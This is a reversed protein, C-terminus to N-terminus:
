PATAFAKPFDALQTLRRSANSSPKGSGIMAARFAPFTPWQVTSRTNAGNARALLSCAILSSLTISVSGNLLRSSSWNKLCYLDDGRIVRSFIISSGLSANFAIRNMLLSSSARLSSPPGSSIQSMSTLRM